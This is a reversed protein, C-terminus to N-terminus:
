SPWKFDGGAPLPGDISGGPSFTPIEVQITQVGLREALSIIRMTTEGTGFSIVLAPHESKFMRLNREDITEKRFVRRERGYPQTPINNRNAWALGLREAGGENGAILLSFGKELHLAELTKFVFDREATARRIEADSSPRGVNRGGCVIVKM